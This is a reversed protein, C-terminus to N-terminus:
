KDHSGREPSESPTSQKIEEPTAMKGAVEQDDRSVLDRLVMVLAASKMKSQDIVDTVPNRVILGIVEAQTKGGEAATKIEILTNVDPKPATLGQELMQGFGSAKLRKLTDVARSHVDKTHLRSICLVLENCAGESLV